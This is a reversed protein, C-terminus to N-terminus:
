AAAHENEMDRLIPVVWRVGDPLVLARQQRQPREVGPQAAPAVDSREGPRGRVRVEERRAVAAEVGGPLAGAGDDAERQLAGGRGLELM